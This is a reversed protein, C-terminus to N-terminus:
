HVFQFIIWGFALAFLPLSFVLTVAAIYRTKNSKIGNLSQTQTSQTGRALGLVLMIGAGQAVSLAHWHTAPVIYWRWLISLVWGNLILAPFALLAVLGMTFISVLIILM